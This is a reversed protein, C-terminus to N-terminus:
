ARFSMMKAVPCRKEVNPLCGTGMLFIGREGVSFELPRWVNVLKGELRFGSTVSSLSVRIGTGEKPASDILLEGGLAGRRDLRWTNIVKMILFDAPM